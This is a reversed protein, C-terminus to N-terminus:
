LNFKKIAAEKLLQVSGDLGFAGSDILLNKGLISEFSCGTYFKHYLKRAKDVNNMLNKATEPYLHLDNVCNVLRHDYDAYIFVNLM